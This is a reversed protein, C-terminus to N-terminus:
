VYSLAAFKSLTCNLSWAIDDKIRLENQVPSKTYSGFNAMTMIKIKNAHNFIIRGLHCLVSVAVRNLYGSGFLSEFSLCM